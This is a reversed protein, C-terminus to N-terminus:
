PTETSSRKGTAQDLLDVVIGLAAGWVLHATIVLVNRQAPQDDAQEPLNMVPLWGLYSAAWVLLGYMTGKLAPPAPIKGALPGYVTGAGTGYAFHSIWVIGREQPRNLHRKLGLRRAVGMTIKEPPLSHRQWFPLYRHLGLMTLTMPVTALCGALAGKLGPILYATVVSHSKQM